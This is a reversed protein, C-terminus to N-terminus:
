DATRFPAHRYYKPRADLRVHLWHVGLGATSVWVPRDSTRWHEDVARGVARWLARVQSAPATRLFALLHAYVAADDIPTPVVLQADGGLNRFACVGDRAHAFQDRFPVPDSSVRALAPSPVLVHEFARDRTQASVAVTEWAVAAAEHAALEAAYAACFADDSQWKGAVEAWTLGDVVTM